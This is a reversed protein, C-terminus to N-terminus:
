VFKKCNISGSPETSHECSSAV